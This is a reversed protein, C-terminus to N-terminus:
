HNQAWSQDATEKHRSEQSQPTFLTITAHNMYNHRSDHLQPTIRTVTAHNRYNHRSDHIQKHSKMNQTHIVRM